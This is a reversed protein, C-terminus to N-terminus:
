PLAVVREEVSAEKRSDQDHLSAAQLNKFTCTCQLLSLTCLDGMEWEGVWRGKGRPDDASSHTAVFYADEAELQLHVFDWLLSFM